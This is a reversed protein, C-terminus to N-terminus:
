VNTTNAVQLWKGDRKEYASMWAMVTEVPTKKGASDTETYALKMRVVMWGMRGDPSVRIIPPELDDWATFEARAFYETLGKRMADQTQREIKGDRVYILEPPLSGVLANVDYSFHARRDAQHLALLEAQASEADSAPSLVTSRAPAICSLGCFIAVALLTQNVADESGLRRSQAL